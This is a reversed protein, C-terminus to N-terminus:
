CQLGEWKDSYLWEKGDSSILIAEHGEPWIGNKELYEIDGIATQKAYNEDRNYVRIPYRNGLKDELNLIFIPM